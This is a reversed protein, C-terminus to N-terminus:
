NYLDVDIINIPQFAIYKRIKAISPIKGIEEYEPISFQTSIYISNTDYILINDEIIEGYYKGYKDIFVKKAYDFKALFHKTEKNYVSDNYTYAIYKSNLNYYHSPLVYKKKCGMVFMPLLMCITVLFFVGIKKM